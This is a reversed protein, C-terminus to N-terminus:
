FLFCSLSSEFPLSSKVDPPALDESNEQFKLDKPNYFESEPYEINSM